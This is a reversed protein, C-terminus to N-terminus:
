KAIDGRILWVIDSGIASIPSVNDFCDASDSLFGCALVASYVHHKYKQDNKNAQGQEHSSCANYTLSGVQRVFYLKAIRGNEWPLPRIELDARSSGQQV